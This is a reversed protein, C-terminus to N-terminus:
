RPRKTIPNGPDTFSGAAAYELNVFALPCRRRGKLGFANVLAFSAINPAVNRNSMLLRPRAKEWCTQDTPAERPCACFAFKPRGVRRRLLDSKQGSTEFVGNLDFDWTVGIPANYYADCQPQNQVSFQMPLIMNDDLTVTTM